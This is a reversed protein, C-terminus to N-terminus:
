ECAPHTGVSARLPPLSHSSLIEGIGLLGDCFYSSIFMMNEIRELEDRRLQDTCPEKPSEPKSACEAFTKREGDRNCYQMFIATAECIAKALIAEVGLSVADM